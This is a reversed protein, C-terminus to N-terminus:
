KDFYLFPFPYYNHCIHLYICIYIVFSVCNSVVGSWCGALGESTSSLSIFEWGRWCEKQMIHYLISYGQPWNLDATGISNRGVEKSGENHIARARYVVASCCSYVNAHLWCPKEGLVLVCCWVLCQLFCKWGLQFQSLMWGKNWVM